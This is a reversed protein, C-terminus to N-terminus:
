FSLSWATLVVVLLMLDGLWSRRTRQGRRIFGLLKGTPCMLRCYSMPRAYASGIGILWVLSSFTLGIRWSYADFPELWALPISWNFLLWAMAAFIALLPTFELMKFAVRGCDHKYAVGVSNREVTPGRRRIMWQQIAGHPCIHDCYVNQKTLVPWAVAIVLLLSLGPALQFQIGGRTWGALLALSLLNGALLGLLLFCSVQWIRRPWRRGRWPSRSWVIAVLALAATLIETPSWNWRRVSTVQSQQSQMRQISATITRAVALSTMTAGSVGEIEEQQIDLEALNTLSRGKFRSWFSYEQKVYGVYPENDYSKRVKINRLVNDNDILLLLETPGQYGAESDVLPGTRAIWGQPADDADFLPVLGNGKVEGMRGVEPLLGRVEDLSIPDPFRLSQRQGSIRLQIAEAIALSTLTAGSVGDISATMPQGLSLGVFQQWFHTSNEVQKAHEITDGSSLLKAQTVRQDEDLLLLVNNPGSYGIVANAEPSTTIAFALIEGAGDLVKYCISTGLPFAQLSASEGLLTKVSELQLDGQAVFKTKADRQAAAAHLGCVAAVILIM